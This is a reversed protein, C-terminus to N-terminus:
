ILSIVSICRGYDNERLKQSRRYSFFNDKDSYTDLAIDDIKSINLKEFKYRIYARLNFLIKGNLTQFFIKNKIDDDIFKQYFDNKVEYNKQGICPGISVNIKNKKNILNIANITNEIIGNFAGKWGAHICAIINNYEEYILIPVCDATLVSIGVGRMGTILADSNFRKLKKNDEDVILVKNSHTQNMTLLNEKKVGIRKSIIELNNLINQKKDM